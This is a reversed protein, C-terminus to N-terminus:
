LGERRGAPPPVVPYGYRKSLPATALGVLVQESRSMRTRWEDDVTIGVEGTRFRDPNGAVTHSAGLIV